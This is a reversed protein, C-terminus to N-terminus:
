EEVTPDDVPEEVTPAAQESIAANYIVEDGIATALQKNQLDALDAYDEPNLGVRTVVGNDQLTEFVKAEM